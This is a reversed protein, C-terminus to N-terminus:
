DLKFVYQNLFDGVSIDENKKALFYRIAGPHGEKAAQKILGIALVNNTPYVLQAKVIMAEANGQEILTDLENVTHEDPYYEAMWLQASVKGANAKSVMVPKITDNEYLHIAKTISEDLWFYLGVCLSAGVIVLILQRELKKKKLPNILIAPQTEWDGTINSKM